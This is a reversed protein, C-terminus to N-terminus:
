AKLIEKAGAATKLTESSAKYSFGALIIDNCSLGNIQTGPLPAAGALVLTKM